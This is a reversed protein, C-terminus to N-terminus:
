LPRASAAWEPLYTFAVVPVRVLGQRIGAVLVSGARGWRGGDPASWAALRAPRSAAPLAKWRPAIVVHRPTRAVPEPAPAARHRAGPAAPAVPRHKAAPRAAAATTTTTTAADLQGYSPDNGLGLRRSCAPWPSWGRARYLLKARLDQEAPPADSPLGSGGYAHWTGASFQYAGYYGNGTNARYNDGSECVRLRHWADAGPDAAVPTATGLLAAAALGATLALLPRPVGRRASRRHRGTRPCPDSV